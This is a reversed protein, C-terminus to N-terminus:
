PKAGSNGRQWDTDRPAEKKVLAVLEDFQKQAENVRNIADTEARKAEALIAQRSVLLDNATACAAVADALMANLSKTM